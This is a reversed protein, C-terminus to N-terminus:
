PKSSGEISRKLITLLSLLADQIEIRCKEYDKPSGGIPDDINGRESPDAGYGKLLFTKKIAEPNESAIIARHGDEMVLIVDADAVETPSLSQSTHAPVQIGADELTQKAGASIPQGDLAGIGRSLVTFGSLKERALMHRLLIEAMPSRCTNGTCVFLIKCIPKTSM